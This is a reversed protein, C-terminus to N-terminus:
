STFSKTRVWRQFEQTCLREFQKLTARGKEAYKPKTSIAGQSMAEAFILERSAVDETVRITRKRSRLTGCQAECSRVPNKPKSGKAQALLRRGDAVIWRRWVQGNSVLRRVCLSAVRERIDGCFKTAVILSVCVSRGYLGFRLRESARSCAAIEVVGV